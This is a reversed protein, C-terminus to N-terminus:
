EAETTVSKAASNLISGGANVSVVWISYTTNYALNTLTYTTGTINGTQQAQNYDSSTGYKLYYQAAGKAPYWNLTISNGSVAHAKWSAAPPATIQSKRNSPASEVGDHVATVWTFYTTGAELDPITSSTGTVGTIKEASAFGASTGYYVNYSNANEVASWTVTIQRKGNGYLSKPANQKPTLPDDGTTVEAPTRTMVGGSGNFAEMWIYYKTNFELGTITYTNTRIYTARNTNTYDNTTGYRVAYWETGVGDNWNLTITNGSVVPTSLVPAAPCTMGHMVNSAESVGPAAVAKVWTYYATGKELEKLEYSTGTIGTASPTEPISDSTSCYVNYSEAGAFADWSVTIKQIGGAPERQVPASAGTTVSAATSKRLGGSANASEPWIYYTTNYDLDAITYTTTKIGDITTATEFDNTTSYNLRYLSAGPVKNWSLTITNCFVVPTKLTPASPYTLVSKMESAASVGKAGVARVWLYYRTGAQLNEITYSTDVAGTIEAADAIRNTTGYYVNYTEAGDVATWNVIVKKNQGLPRKQVPAPLLYGHAVAWDHAYTGENATVHVQDPSPLANDAIFTLSDPLNIDTLTSGWFAKARIETIHDSLVVRSLSTDDCFAEEEIIQLSAPLTLSEAAAPCIVLLSFLAVTSLLVLWVRIRNM